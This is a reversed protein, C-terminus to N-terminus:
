TTDERRWASLSRAFWRRPAVSARRTSSSATSSACAAIEAARPAVVGPATAGTERMAEVITAYPVPFGAVDPTDPRVVGFWPDAVLVASWVLGAVAVLLLLWQLVRVLGAWAPMKDADLETASLAADLRDNLDPLRAM